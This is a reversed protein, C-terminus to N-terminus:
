FGISGTRTVIFCGSTFGGGNCKICRRSRRSVSNTSLPSLGNSATAGYGAVGPHGFPHPRPSPLVPQPAKRLLGTTESDTQASITGDGGASGNQNGKGSDVLLKRILEQQEAVQARLEGVM